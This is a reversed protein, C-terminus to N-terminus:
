IRRKRYENYIAKFNLEDLEEDTFEEKTDVCQYYVIPVKFEIGNCEYVTYEVKRTVEGDTFPSKIDAKNNNM